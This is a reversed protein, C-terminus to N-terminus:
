PTKRRVELGALLKETQSLDGIFKRLPPPLEKILTPAAVVQGAQAQGPQQYIDILDLEFRGPLYEACLQQLNDIARVSQASLGAIYLRLVYHRTDPQQLAQEFAETASPPHDAPPRPARM